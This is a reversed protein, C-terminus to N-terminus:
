KIFFFLDDLHKCAHKRNKKLNKIHSPANLLLM